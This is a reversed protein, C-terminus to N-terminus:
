RCTIFVPPLEKWPKRWAARQPSASARHGSVLMSCNMYQERHVM